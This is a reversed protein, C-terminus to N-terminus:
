VEESKTLVKIQCKLEEIQRKLNTNENKHYEATSKASALEKNEKEEETLERVRSSDVLELKVGEQKKTFIYGDAEKVYESNVPIADELMAVALERNKVAFHYYDFTVIYTKM